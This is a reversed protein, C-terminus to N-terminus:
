PDVGMIQNVVAGMVLIIATFVVTMLLLRLFPEWVVGGPAKHLPQERVFMVVLVCIVLVAMLVFLAGWLNGASILKGM